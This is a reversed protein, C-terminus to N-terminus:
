EGGTLNHFLNELAGFDYKLVDVDVEALGKRQCARKLAHALVSFDFKCDRYPELIRYYHKVEEFISGEQSEAATSRQDSKELSEGAWFRKWMSEIRQALAPDRFAHVYPNSPPRKTTHYIDLYGRPEVKIRVYQGNLTGSFSAPIKQRTLLAVFAQARQEIEALPNTPEQEDGLTEGIAGSNALADAYDNWQNGSHASVKHWTVNVPWGAAARAYARTAPKNARWEGTAWKAIGEYDYFISVTGIDHEQCWNVAEYVAKLEGGVQRMGQLSPDDVRGKGENCPEGNKLVVFGYGINGKMYSGDVYISYEKVAQHNASTTPTDTTKTGAWYVQLEPAISKDKLEHTKLTYADRKPSYYINVNGYTREGRKVSVKVMYDRFSGPVIGASVGVQALDRVFAKARKQVEQQYKYVM